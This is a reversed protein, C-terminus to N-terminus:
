DSDYETKGNKNPVVAPLPAPADPTDFWQPNYGDAQMKQKIAVVPVGGEQMKFYGALKPHNRTATAAGSALPPPPPPASGPPPAGPVPPPMLMLPAGPAGPASVGPPLPPQKVGPPPPPAGGATKMPPPAALAKPAQVGPPLPPVKGSSKAMPPPPAGGPPAVGPPLNPGGTIALPAGASPKDAIALPSSTTEKRVPSAGEADISDLKKELLIVQCELRQLRRSTNGLKVDVAAVFRNMFQTTNIIYKNILEVTRQFDKPKQGSM